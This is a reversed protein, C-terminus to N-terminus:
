YVVSVDHFCVCWECQWKIEVSERERERYIHIYVYVYLYTGTMIYLQRFGSHTHTHTHVHTHTHTVETTMRISKCAGLVDSYGDGGHSRKTTPEPPFVISTVVETGYGDTEDSSL